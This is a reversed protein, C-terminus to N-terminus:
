EVRSKSSIESGQFAHFLIRCEEQRYMAVGCAFARKGLSNAKILLWGAVENKEPCEHRCSLSVATLEALLEEYDPDQEDQLHHREQEEVATM